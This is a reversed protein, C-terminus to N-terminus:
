DSMQEPDSGNLSSSCSRDTFPSINRIVFKTVGSPISGDQEEETELSSKDSDLSWDGINTTLDVNSRNFNQNSIKLDRWIQPVKVKQAIYQPQNM